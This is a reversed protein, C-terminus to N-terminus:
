EMSGRAHACARVRVSECILRILRNIYKELKGLERIKGVLYKNTSKTSPNYIKKVAYPNKGDVFVDVNTKEKNITNIFDMLLTKLQQHLNNIQQNLYIIM